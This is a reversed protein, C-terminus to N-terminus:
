GSAVLTTRSGRDAQDLSGSGCRVSGVEVRWNHVIVLDWLNAASGYPM